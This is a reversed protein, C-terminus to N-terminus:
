RRLKHASAETGFHDRAKRGDSASASWSDIKRSPQDGELFFSQARGRKFFLEAPQVRGNDRTDIAISDHEIQPRHQGM